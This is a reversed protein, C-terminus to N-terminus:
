PANAVTQVVFRGCTWCANEGVVCGGLMIEGREAAEFMESSPLGFQLRVGDYRLGCSPCIVTVPKGTLPDEAVPTIRVLPKGRKTVLVPERTASVEACIESFRTKADFIGVVKM